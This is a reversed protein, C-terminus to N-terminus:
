PSLDLKALSIPRIGMSGGPPKTEFLAPPTRPPIEKPWAITALMAKFGVELMRSGPRVM